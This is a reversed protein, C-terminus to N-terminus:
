AGYRLAKQLAYWAQKPVGSFTRLGFFNEVTSTSTGLDQYSYWFLAGVHPDSRALQLSQTVMQAQLAQDVHNPHQALDLNTTTAAPGPGGTPAGYETLWIPKSGAGYSELISELSPSTRGIKLWGNWSESSDPPAPYSYPHYGIGDVYQLGGASSFQELYQLAPINGGASYGPSLGGSIITANPDVDRMLKTTTELLAVYSTPDPAPQWFMTMNPENWIEWTHIGRPAYRAIAAAAFIAFETPSAPACFQTTCGAPRAWAPTGDLTPLVSIGDADAASVITDFPAWNFLAPATPQVAAWDLDVRIWGVGLTRISAVEAQVAAPTMPWLTYGLSLGVQLHANAPQPATTPPTAPLPTATAAATSAPVAIATTETTAPLSVAHTAPAAGAVTAAIENRASPRSIACTPTATPLVATAVVKSATPAPTAPAAMALPTAVFTGAVAVLSVVRRHM